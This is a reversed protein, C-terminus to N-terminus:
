SHLVESNPVLREGPESVCEACWIAVFILVQGSVYESNKFKTEEPTMEWTWLRSDLEIKAVFENSRKYITFIIGVVEVIAVSVVIVEVVIVVLIGVIGM